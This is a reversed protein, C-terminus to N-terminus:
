SLRDDQDPLVEGANLAVIEARVKVVLKPFTAADGGSVKIEIDAFRADGKLSRVYADIAEAPGALTGNIGEEAILIRGKLHLAACLARQATAFQTPDAVRVYKYFLILPFIPPM